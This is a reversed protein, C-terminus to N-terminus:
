ARPPAGFYRLSLAADIVDLLELYSLHSYQEGRATDYPQGELRSNCWFSWGDAGDWRITATIGVPLRGFM